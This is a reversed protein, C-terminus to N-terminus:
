DEEDFLNCSSKCSPYPGGCAICGEPIDDEEYDYDFIYDFLEDDDLAYLDNNILYEDFEYFDDLEGANYLDVYENYVEILDEDSGDFEGIMLSKIYMIDDSHEM